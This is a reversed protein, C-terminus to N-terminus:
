TAVIAFGYRQLDLFRVAAVITAVLAAPFSRFLTPSELLALFTGLALGRTSRRTFDIKSAFELLRPLIGGATIQFGFVKGIQGLVISLAVGNLFVVVIPKALFDALAGLRLFSALICLIGALLALTVSASDYLEQDGAALPAVTDCCARM